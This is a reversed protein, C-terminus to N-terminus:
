THISATFEPPLPLEFSLVILPEFNIFEILLKEYPM